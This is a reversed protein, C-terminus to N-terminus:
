SRVVVGQQNVTLLKIEDGPTLSGKEDNQNESTAKSKKNLHPQAEELMKKAEIWEHEKLATNNKMQRIENVIIEAEERAQILAKEAKEEAKRFLEAKKQEFTQWEKEIEKRLRESELM